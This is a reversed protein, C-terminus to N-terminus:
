IFGETCSSNDLIQLAAERRRWPNQLLLACLYCLSLLWHPRLDSDDPAQMEVPHEHSTCCGGDQPASLIQLFRSAVRNKQKLMCWPPSFKDDEWRIRLRQLKHFTLGNFATLLKSGYIIGFVQPLSVLAVKQLWWSIEMSSNLLLADLAAERGRQTCPECITPSGSPDRLSQNLDM